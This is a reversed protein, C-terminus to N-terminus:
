LEEVFNSQMKHFLRRTLAFLVAAVAFALALHRLYFAYGPAALAHGSAGSYRDAYEDTVYIGRQFCAVATAMPNLFYLWYWSHLQDRILSAPYVIPTLWFWVLLGIEVLHATDRYRVNMAATFYGIACCFVVLLATAPLVLLLAPSLDHRLLLAVGIIAVFQLVFHVMANGIASLPLVELPFRVKKVLGSNGTVSGTAFSVAGSFATWPLLGAAIFIAFDPVGTKLIVGFAFYYIALLLLPNALSWAFGLSSGQYKIKLDKRVLEVLLEARLRRQARAREAAADSRDSRPGSLTV